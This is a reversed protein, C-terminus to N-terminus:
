PLVLKGTPFVAADPGNWEASVESFYQLTLQIAYLKSRSLWKYKFYYFLQESMGLKVTFYPTFLEFTRDSTYISSHSRIYYVHNLNDAIEIFSLAQFRTFRCVLSSEHMIVSLHIYRKNVQISNQPHDGYISNVSYTYIWNIYCAGRVRQCWLLFPALFFWGNKHTASQRNYHYAIIVFSFIIIM